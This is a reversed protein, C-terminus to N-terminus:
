FYNFCGLVEMFGYHNGKKKGHLRITYCSVMTSSISDYKRFAVDKKEPSPICAVERRRNHSLIAPKRTVYGYELILFQKEKQPKLKM